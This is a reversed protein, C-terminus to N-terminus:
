PPAEAVIYEESWSRAGCGNGDRNPGLRCLRERLVVGVGDPTFPRLLRERTKVVTLDGGCNDCTRVSMEGQYDSRDPLQVFCMQRAADRTSSSTISRRRSSTRRLCARAPRM